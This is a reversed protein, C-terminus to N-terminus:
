RFAFQYLWVLYVSVAANGEGAACLGSDRKQLDANGCFSDGSGAAHIRITESVATRGGYREPIRFPCHRQFHQFLPAFLNSGVYSNRFDEKTSHAHYVVPIGHRKAKKALFFSHPFVTNIHVVDADQWREACCVGNAELAKRQHLIARGVGSKEIQRQLESYLFVRM